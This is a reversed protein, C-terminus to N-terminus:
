KAAKPPLASMLWRNGFLRSKSYVGYHGEIGFNAFSHAACHHSSRFRSVLRSRAVGRPGM